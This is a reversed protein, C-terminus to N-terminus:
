KKRKQQPKVGSAKMRAKRARKRENSTMPKGSPRTPAGPGAPRSRKGTMKATVHAPPGKIIMTYNNYNGNDTFVKKRPFGKGLPRSVRKLVLMSLRETVTTWDDVVEFGADTCLGAFLEYSFYRSHEFCAKPLVFFCLGYDSSRLLGNAKLMMEGRRRPDPEFNVVLSLVVIDYQEKGINLELFDAEEVASSKDLVHLDIARSSALHLPSVGAEYRLSNIAGVDLLTRGKTDGIRTLTMEVWKCVDFGEAGRLSQEQYAAHEAETLPRSDRNHVRHIIASSQAEERWEKEAM